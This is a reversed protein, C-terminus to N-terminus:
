AHYPQLGCDNEGSVEREGGGIGRARGEQAHQRGPGAPAFFLSQRGHSRGRAVRGTAERSQRAQHPLVDEEDAVAPGLLEKEAGDVGEVGLHPERSTAREGHPSDLTSGAHRM